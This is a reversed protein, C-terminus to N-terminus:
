ALTITEGPNVIKVPISFREEVDRKFDEPSQAILPWTNYHMPVVLRPKLMAAAEAADQPGMTFNDGIPLLACDIKELRGILAMDGFLGTDGAFYVTTGGLNVVFGCAHGGPVGAGHFALTIRVYGFDFAHKGGLHMAHTKVGQEGCLGAIEATSIVTAGTRKAIKLADGLHDFHGHSVLIYDCQIDDPMGTKFPNDTLFPDFLLSTQGNSLLFCAHGYFKLTNM